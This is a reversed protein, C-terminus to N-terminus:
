GAPFLDNEHGEWVRALDEKAPLTIAVLCSRVTIHSGSKMMFNMGKKSTCHTTEIRDGHRRDATALDRASIGARQDSTGAGVAATGRSATSRYGQRSGGARAPYETMPLGGPIAVPLASYTRQYGVTILGFPSMKNKGTMVQGNDLSSGAITM